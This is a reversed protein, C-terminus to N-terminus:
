SLNIILIYPNYIYRSDLPTIGSLTKAVSFLSNRGHFSLKHWVNGKSQLDTKQTRLFIGNINFKKLKLVHPNSQLLCKLIQFFFFIADTLHVTQM